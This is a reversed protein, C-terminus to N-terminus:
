LSHKEPLWKEGNELKTFLKLLEAKSHEKTNEWFSSREIRHMYSTSPIIQIRNGASLWRYNVLMVDAAHNDAVTVESVKRIYENRPVLYNGDNIIYIKKLLGNRSLAGAEEFTIVKKGLEHFPFYPFAWSACYITDYKPNVMSSLADLYNVFATNDSDLVLVWSSTARQVCELKTKLAGMNKERRYLQIKGAHPIKRIARQVDFWM